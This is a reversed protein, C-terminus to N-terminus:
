QLAHQALLGTHVRMKWACSMNVKQLNYIDWMTIICNVLGCYLERGQICFALVMSDCGKLMKQCKYTTYNGWVKIIKSFSSTLLLDDMSCIVAGQYGMFTEKYKFIQQFDCSGQTGM